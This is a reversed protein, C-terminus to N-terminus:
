RVLTIDACSYYNKPRSPNETMVQILQITCDGCLVDPLKVKTKYLHPLTSNDDQDDEVRKLLTFGTDGSPSFYIEFHGPHDIVEKWAIEIESGASHVAPTSTRAIGGCPARKLGPNEVRPKLDNNPVITTHAFAFSSILSLVVTLLRM